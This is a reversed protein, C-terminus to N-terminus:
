DSSSHGIVLVIKGFQEGAALRRLAVNGEALPFVADVVPVIRHQQVFRLMHEFEQPSGMSSGYIALQKWFIVQPSLSNIKGLSGGYIGIRAGTNCLPPLLSFADGGAADIVVDFGGAMARLQKPWDAARYNVGSSAGMQIARQIKEDSGSTVFVEAGAAIALQCAMLAVGGGIGTILVREGARLQCRTFLTRYATLGALPLAAAQKWTLHEPKPFLNARPVLVYEAFTGDEPMGLVRFNRGPMTPDDGWDLGPYIVVPRGRWEGAGDSGLVAPLRIHAYQGQQIWYDRHNLAAARLRVVATDATETPVPRETPILAHGIERLELANM